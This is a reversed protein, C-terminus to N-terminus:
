LVLDDAVLPPSGALEIRLEAQLDGDTSALLVGNVYRVQGAATFAATGIFVFAQNGGTLVDADITSLDIRDGARAGNGAFDAIVDSLGPGSDMTANFDFRDHDAGGTLTDAGRGGVLVDNGAGGDLANAGSTGTLQNKLANGTGGIDATGLLALNELNAGLAYTVVSKVTDLGGGAAEKAEGAANVVYTDDGLGGRLTDIGGAGTLTDNGGAGLVLDDRLSGVITEADGDGDVQLRANGTSSTDFDLFTFGSLDVAAASGMTVRLTVAVAGPDGDVVLNAALGAGVQSAGITAVVAQPGSFDLKEISFISVASVDADATFGIFDFDQGGDITDAGPDGTGYIFGDNGSSGALSDANGGGYILDDGGGGDVLDILDDGIIFDSAVTDGATFRVAQLVQGVVEDGNSTFFAALKGDLMGAVSTLNDGFATMGVSTSALLNGAQDVLSWNPDFAVSFSTSGVAIMGNSLVTLSPLLDGHDNQSVDDADIFNGLGDFRALTIDFDGGEGWSSDAYAIAFGGNPLAVISPDRNADEGDLLTPVKRPSGDPEYVAYWVESATEAFRHWAIAFSGDALAAVSPARDDADTGDVTFATVPHGDNDHIEVRLDHDTGEILVQSVVVFGGGALGAVDVALVQAFSDGSAAPAVITTGTSSVITFFAQDGHEGAIVINGNSLESIAAGTTAPFWEPAGSIRGDPHFFTTDSHTLHDGVVAVGGGALSTADPDSTIGAANLEGVFELSYTVSLAAM